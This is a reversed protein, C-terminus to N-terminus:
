VPVVLAPEDEAWEIPLGFALDHGLEEEDETEEEEDATAPVVGTGLDLSADDELWPVLQAARERAEHLDRETLDDGLIQRIEALEDIVRDM